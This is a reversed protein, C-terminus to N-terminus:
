EAPHWALGSTQTRAWDGNGSGVAFPELDGRLDTTVGIYSGKIQIISETGSVNHAPRFTANVVGSINTIVSDYSGHTADLLVYLSESM